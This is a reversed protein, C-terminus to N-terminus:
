AMFACFWICMNCESGFYHAFNVRFGDREELQDLVLADKQLDVALLSDLIWFPVWSYTYDFPLSEKGGIGIEM